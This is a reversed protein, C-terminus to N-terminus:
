KCDSEDPNNYREKKKKRREEREMAEIALIKRGREIVAKIGEPTKGKESMSRMHDVYREDIDSSLINIIKGNHHFISWTDGYKQIRTIGDLFFWFREGRALFGLVNEKIIIDMHQVPVLVIKFLGVLFGSAFWFPLVSLFVFWPSIMCSIYVIVAILGGVLIFLVGL